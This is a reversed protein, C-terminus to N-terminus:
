HKWDGSLRPPLAIEFGSFMLAAIPGPGDNTVLEAKTGLRCGSFSRWNGAM